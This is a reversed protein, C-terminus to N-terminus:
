PAAAKPNPHVERIGARTSVLHRVSLHPAYEAENSATIVAATMTHLRPLRAVPLWRETGIPLLGPCCIFSPTPPATQGKNLTTICTVFSSLVV